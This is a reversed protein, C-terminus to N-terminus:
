RPSFLVGAYYLADFVIGKRTDLLRCIKDVDKVQFSIALNFRM